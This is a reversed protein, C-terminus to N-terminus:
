FTTTSRSNETVSAAGFFITIEALADARFSFFEYFASKLKSRMGEMALFAFMGVIEDDHESSIDTSFGPKREVKGQSVLTEFASTFQRNMLGSSTRLAWDFFGDRM